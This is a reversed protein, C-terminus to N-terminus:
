CTTTATPRSRTSATWPARSSTTRSPSTARTPRPAWHTIALNATAHCNRFTSDRVTLGDAAGIQLCETHVNPDNRTFDHFAVGDILINRPPTAIDSQIQPHANVFPGASGGVLAISESSNIYFLGQSVDRFMVDAAQPTTQWQSIAINRLELHQADIGLDGTSVSAGPAPAM